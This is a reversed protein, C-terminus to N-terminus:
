EVSKEEEFDAPDATPSGATGEQAFRCMEIKACTLFIDYLFFKSKENERNVSSV